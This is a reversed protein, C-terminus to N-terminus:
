CQLARAPVNPELFRDRDGEMASPTTAPDRTQFVLGHEAPHCGFALGSIRARRRSITSCGKPVIFCHIFWPAKRIFAVGRAPSISTVEFRATPSHARYKAVRDHCGRDQITQEVVAVHEGDPPVAIPKAFPAAAPRQM